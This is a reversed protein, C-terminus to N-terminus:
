WYPGREESTPAAEDQAARRHRSIAGPVATEEILTAQVSSLLGADVLKDVLFCLGMGDANSIIVTSMAGIDGKDKGFREMSTRVDAAVEQAASLLVEYLSKAM